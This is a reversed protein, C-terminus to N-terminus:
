EKVFPLVAGNETCLRYLGTGLGDMPISNTGPALVFHACRRGTADVIWALTRAWQGEVMLRDRVPNPYGKLVPVGLTGPVANPAQAIGWFRRDFRNDVDNENRFGIRAYGTDASAGTYFYYYFHLTDGPTLTVLATDIHPLYCIDACLSSSWDSPLDTNMKVMRVLVDDPGEAWLLASGYLTTGADGHITDNSTFAMDFQGTFSGTCDVPNGLLSDIDCM